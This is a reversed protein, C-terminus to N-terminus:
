PSVRTCLYIRGTRSRYGHRVFHRALRASHAAGSQYGLAPAPRPIDLRPARASEAGCSGHQMPASEDWLAPCISALHATVPSKGGARSAISPSWLARLSRIEYWTNPEEPDMELFEWIAKETAICNEQSVANSIVVYGHEEWFALDDASLIPKQVESVETPVEATVEGTMARHLATNIRDITTQEIHGGNQQLIWAEFEEYTPCNSYLYDIAPYLGLGLGDMVLGDFQWDEALAEHTLQGQMKLLRKSWLRKLYHIGLPGVETSSCLALQGAM